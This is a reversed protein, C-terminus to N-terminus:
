GNPTCEIISRRAAPHVGAVCLGSSQALSRIEDLNRERGGTYALMRLDSETSPKGSGLTEIILIRGRRGAAKACNRLILASHHDDWDHLISSLLYADFSDPVGDFFDGQMSQFRALADSPRDGADARGTRGPLEFVAGRLGPFRDLLTMVLTGDGGGIDVVSNLSPWDYADAIADAALTMRRAMLEDFSKCRHPDDTLDAWYATGFQVPFSPEGTRISHLLEVFCLDARGVGGEIDLWERVGDPHGAKLHLGLPTPRYRDEHPQDLIGIRTLHRMLRRLADANVSTREAIQAASTYGAELHDVIRLTAAVRIAM